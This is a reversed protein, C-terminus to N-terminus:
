LENKGEEAETANENPPLPANCEEKNDPDPLCKNLSQWNLHKRQLCKLYMPCKKIKAEYEHFENLCMSPSRCKLPNPLCDGLSEWDPHGALFCNILKGYGSPDRLMREQPTMHNGCKWASGEPCCADGIAADRQFCEGWYDRCKAAMKNCATLKEPAFSDDGLCIFGPCTLATLFAFALVGSKSVDM